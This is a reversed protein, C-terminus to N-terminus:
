CDDRNWFHQPPILAIYPDSPQAVLLRRSELFASAPSPMSRKVSSRNDLLRRSELFASAPLALWGLWTVISSATTAIGSISLRVVDSVTVPPTQTRATTAIGSISLRLSSLSVTM